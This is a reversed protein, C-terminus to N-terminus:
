KINLKKFTEIRFDYDIAMKYIVHNHRDKFDKSKFYNKEASVREFENKIVESYENEISKFSERIDMPESYRGLVKRYGLPPPEPPPYNLYTWKGVRVKLELLSPTFDHPFPNFMILLHEDFSSVTLLEIIAHVKDLYLNFDRLDEFGKLKEITSNIESASLSLDYSIGPYKVNQENWKAYQAPVTYKNGWCKFCVGNQVKHYQPIYGKGGCRTCREAKGIPKNNKDVVLLPNENHWNEHCDNCLTILDENPQNIPLIDARYREHHIELIEQERVKLYYIGLDNSINPRDGNIRFEHTDYSEEIYIKQKKGCKSCRYNDRRLIEQRKTRWTPTSLLDSYILENDMLIEKDILSIFM